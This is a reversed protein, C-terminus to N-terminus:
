GIDLLKIAFFCLHSNGCHRPNQNDKWVGGNATEHVSKTGRRIGTRDATGHAEFCWLKEIGPLPASLQKLFATAWKRERCDVESSEIM